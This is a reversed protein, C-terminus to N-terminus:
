GGMNFQLAGLTGSAVQLAFPQLFKLQGTADDFGMVTGSAVGTRPFSYISDLDSIRVGTSTAISISTVFGPSTHQISSGIRFDSSYTAQTSGQNFSRILLDGTPNLNLDSRMSDVPRSGVAYFGGNNRTQAYSRETITNAMNAPGNYKQYYMGPGYDSNYLRGVRSSGGGLDEFAYSDFFPESGGGYSTMGARSIKTNTPNTTYTGVLDIPLSFGVTLPVTINKVFRNQITRSADTTTGIMRFESNNTDIVTNQSLTGGLGIGAPYVSLGNTSSAAPVGWSLSGLGDNIMVQGVGGSTRPFTYGVNNGPLATFGNSFSFTIGTDHRLGISAGTKTPPFPFPADILTSDILIGQNEGSRLGTAFAYDPDFDITSRSNSALSVTGLSTLGDRFTFTDNTLLGNTRVLNLEQTDLDLTTNKSLIGGLGVTTSTSTTALTLGNSAFLNLPTSSGSGSPVGCVFASGNWSLFEGSLCISPTPLSSGSSIITPVGSAGGGNWFPQQINAFAQSSFSTGNNNTSSIGPTSVDGKEGKQGQLGMEGKPGAIYKIVTEPQTAITQTITNKSLVEIKNELSKIKETLADLASFDPTTTLVEVARDVVCNQHSSGVIPALSCFVRFAFPLSTTSQAVVLIPFLLSLIIYSKKLM